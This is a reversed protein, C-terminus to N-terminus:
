LSRLAPGLAQRDELVPAQLDGMRSVRNLVVSMTFADPDVGARLEDWTVPTSVPAGPKPRVSYAFAITRGPGNQNADILVGRRKAKSWETTVLDPRISALARSIALVVGRTQDYGYRRALPVLVHVGDSGSTKPYGRLDVAALADRVLLAVEAAAAFGAEPTPDLDFLAFDPRDPRDIRSCWANLDICGMNVMWLLAAEENVLPYRIMRKERTDRSTAPFEATPIWEPMHSPANKQFFPKAAIGDPYRKMTFPRSELHPVAVEAVARYYEILDGKTIGEGPWFVKDLNSLELPRVRAATRERRAEERHVEAAPKDDRLGKYSPARLRGDRTWELFEVECVLEPEVWTVDGARVRAMKPAVGLPTTERRLPALRDMLMDLEADDFGTGCNGAWVLEGDREVALVLSGFANGRRGQGRTYGAIVLEQRQQTKVKVWADSRRGALYRSAPRKALVGELEHARAQELLAPGDDFAVSLRVVEGPILTEELLEKRETLPLTTVDRGDLTLIDFAYMTLAGGGHQLLSFRPRGAEDLACVEGDIVCDASRLSGPLARAVQAFRATLDNGNRSRLTVEGGEVAAIVRYGDWKVEYVWDGRVPLEAAPVALMPRLEAPDGALDGEDKRMMLWNRADGDLRAPVLTWLGNLRGGRLRVTLGGDRKQEVLEYHGRDWIEVTGGGYEGKPIEGEFNAYDLPHDEVHVALHRQGKRLPIGKPVAWSALAGDREIRFDFHLRRADHRQVVFIPEDGGGAGTFPEPTRGPDRKRRYADLREPM